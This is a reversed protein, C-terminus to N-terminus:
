RLRKFWKLPNPLKKGYFWEPMILVGLMAVGASISLQNLTLAAGGFFKAFYPTIAILITGIVSLAVTLLLYKNSLPNLRFIGKKESRCNWVVVMERLTAQAFAMTRAVALNGTTYLGFLFVGLSSLYQSLFSAIIMFWYGDLLGESIKRPPRNMLNDSPPDVALSIAPGGDTAVNTWLIMSATFPIPIGILASTGVVAIGDFNSRLLFFSFKRINAYIERGKEIAAVITAYNDDLLILDSAEKAVDTGSNVAIGIDAEKLAPADNVGDGTMGVIHGKKKLARVIKLKQEPLVRAFVDIEEIIEALEEEKITKLEEGTIVKGKKLIGIKKAIAMATIKHDGTIMITKVGANECKKFASFTEERPPDIMGVLGLFTLNEEKHSDGKKYAIALVRLAEHAFKETVTLVRERDKKTIPLEMGNKLIKSCKELITEVAGKSFMFEKGNIKNITSMMRLESSFPFEIVEPYEYNLGYKKAAVILAGETPDGIIKWGGEEVLKANNALAGALLLKELDKGKYEKGKYLFKGHPKYGIGSVEIRRGNTYIKTITMENKTLTGTKDVCLIDVSGLTEVSSLKRILAKKKVMEKAGLALSITVVAPLGEPVASVALAISIMFFSTINFTTLNGAQLARWTEALFILMTIVAIGIALKKAFKSLKRKLPSVEEKIEYTMKAIKGVQTTQGTSSVVFIGRGKTVYTGSYVMNKREPVITKIGVKSVNKKVPTSEGTLISEDIELESVKILRGDAPVRDGEEIVVIDGPVLFKADIVKLKNNRIVKAKPSMYKKLAELAREAKYEQFAGISANLIIIVGIMITETTDGFLVSVIVAFILLGVFVDKFQNLIIKLLSIKKRKILENAGYQKIRKKAEEESLGNSSTKLKELTEKISLSHYM